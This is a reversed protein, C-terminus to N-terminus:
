RWLCSMRPVIVTGSPRYEPVYTANCVRVANPGPYYRPYVDDPEAQYRPYIRLRRPPRQVLETTPDAAAPTAQAMRTGNPATQADAGALLLSFAGGLVVSIVLKGISM